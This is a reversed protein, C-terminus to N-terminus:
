TVDILILFSTKFIQRKPAETQTLFSQPQYLGSTSDPVYVSRDCNQLAMTQNRLISETDINNFFYEAPRVICPTFTKSPDYTMYTNLQGKTAKERRIFSIAM